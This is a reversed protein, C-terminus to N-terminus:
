LRIKMRNLWAQIDKILQEVEKIFAKNQALVGDLDGAKSKMELDYAKKRAEEAGISACSGKLGHVFTVYGPLTEASVTRLKELAVPINIAFSRLATVFIDLEGGCLSTGLEADLGPINIDSVGLKSIEDDLDNM